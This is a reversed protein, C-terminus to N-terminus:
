VGGECVCGCVGEGGEGVGVGWNSGAWTERKRTDRPAEPRGTVRARLM